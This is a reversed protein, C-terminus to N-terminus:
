QVRGLYREYLGMKRRFTSLLQHQLKEVPAHDDTFVLADPPAAIPRILRRIRSAVEAFLPPTRAEM